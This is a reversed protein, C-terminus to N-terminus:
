AVPITDPTNYMETDEADAKYKGIKKGTRFAQSVMSHLEKAFEDKVVNLATAEEEISPYPVKAATVITNFLIDIFETSAVATHKVKIKSKKKPKLMDDIM